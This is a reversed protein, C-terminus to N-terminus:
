YPFFSKGLQHPGAEIEHNEDKYDHFLFDKDPWPHTSGPVIEVNPARLDSVKRDESRLVSFDSITWKKSKLVIIGDPVNYQHRQAFPRSSNSIRVRM